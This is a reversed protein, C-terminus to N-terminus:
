IQCGMANYINYGLVEMLDDPGTYTMDIPALVIAYIGEAVPGCNVVMYKGTDASLGVTKREGKIFYFSAGQPALRPFGFTSTAGEATFSAYDAYPVVPSPLGAGINHMLFDDDDTIITTSMFEPGWADGELRYFLKITAEYADKVVPSKVVSYTYFGWTFPGADVYAPTISSKLECNAFTLTHNDEFKFTKKGFSSSVTVKGHLYAETGYDDVWVWTGGDANIPVLTNKSVEFTGEEAGVVAAEAIPHNALDFIKYVNATYGGVSKGKEVTYYFETEIEYMLTGTANLKAVTGVENDLRLTGSITYEGDGEMAVNITGSKIAADVDKTKIVGEYNNNGTGITYSGTPLYVKDTYFNLKVVIDGSTASVPLKNLEGEIIDDKVLNNVNVEVQAPVEPVVVEPEKEKCSSVALLALATAIFYFFVKKM